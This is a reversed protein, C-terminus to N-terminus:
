QLCMNILIFHSQARARTCAGTHTRGYNGSLTSSIYYLLQKKLILHMSVFHVSFVPFSKHPRLWPVCRDLTYTRTLLPAFIDVHRLVCYTRVCTFMIGVGARGNFEVMFFIVLFM